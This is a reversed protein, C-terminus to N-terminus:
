TEAALNYLSRLVDRVNGRHVHFLHTVQGHLPHGSQGLLTAVIGETLELTTQCAHLNPLLGETHATILLGHANRSRRRLSRWARSTLQEAGDLLLVEHPELRNPFDAPLAQPRESGNGGLRVWRLSQGQQLLRTGLDELLTTKGTGPPGVIAGLRNQKEWRRCLLALAGHAFRYRIRLIRETRFPNERAKM